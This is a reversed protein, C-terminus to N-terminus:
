VGDIMWFMIELGGFGGFMGDGFLGGRGMRGGGMGGMSGMGGFLSVNGFFEVFIDEVNRLNFRFLYVMGGNGFGYLVGGFFM